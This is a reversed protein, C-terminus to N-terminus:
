HLLFYWNFLICTTLCCHIAAIPFVNTQKQHELISHNASEQRQYPHLCPSLAAGPSPPQAKPLPDPVCCIPWTGRGGLGEEVQPPYSPQSGRGGEKEAERHNSLLPLSFPAENQFSM